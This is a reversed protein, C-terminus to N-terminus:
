DHICLYGHNLVEFVSCVFWDGKAYEISLSSMELTDLNSINWQFFISVPHAFVPRHHLVRGLRFNQLTPFTLRASTESLLSELGLITIASANTSDNTGSKM